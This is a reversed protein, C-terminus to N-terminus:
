ENRTFTGLWNPENNGSVIGIKIKDDTDFDIAMKFSEVQDQFLGVTLRNDKQRIAQWKTDGGFMGSKAKVKMGGDKDFSAASFQYFGALSNEDVKEAKEVKWSGVLKQGLGELAERAEKEDDTEGTVDANPVLVCISGEDEYMMYYRDRKEDHAIAVHKCGGGIKAKGISGRLNGKADFRKITGISSEATLIDGNSCCRINMPNCCSGFGEDGTRDQKGFNEVAKGDRDYIGVRFKTNEAILLKDGVAQIDLQGCCGGLKDMVLEPNELDRNVRWIDYGFGVKARCTVYVDESGVAISSVHGMQKVMSELREDSVEAQKNIQELASKMSTLNQELQKDTLRAFPRADDDDAEVEVEDGDDDNEGNGQDDNDDKKRKSENSEAKKKRHALEVEFQDVQQVYIESMQKQQDELMKKAAAFLEARDQGALNPTFTRKVMEGNPSFKCVASDGGVYIYGESDVNIATPRFDVPVERIIKWEPSYVQIFTASAKEGDEQVYRDPGGVAALINGERDICFTNLSIPKGDHEPKLMRVQKHTPSTIKESGDIGDDALIFTSATFLLTMALLVIRRM